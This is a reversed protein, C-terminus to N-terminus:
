QKKFWMKNVMYYIILVTDIYFFILGVIYDEFDIEIGSASKGMCTIMGEAILYFSICLELIIM